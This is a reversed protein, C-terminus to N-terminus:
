IKDKNDYFDFDLHLFDTDEPLIEISVENQKAREIMTELVGYGYMNSGYFEKHCKYISGSYGEFSYANGENYVRVIGSNLKWSDSGLYGGYWSAFVKHIPPTDKRAIRVVVWKDPENYSM